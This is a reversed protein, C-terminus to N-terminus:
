LVPTNGQRVEQEGQSCGQIEHERKHPKERLVYGQGIECRITLYPPLKRRLKQMRKSLVNRDRQYNFSPMLDRFPVCQMPDQLFRMLTQYQLKSGCSILTSDIIIINADDNHKIEHGVWSPGDVLLLRAHLSVAQELDGELQQNVLSATPQRRSSARTNM